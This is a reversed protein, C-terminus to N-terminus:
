ARAVASLGRRVGIAIASWTAGNFVLDIGVFMGLVWLSSEPWKALIAVGLLITIAGNLVVWGWSPFREVLGVAIRFPGGVLGFVAFLLTLSEAATVPNVLMVFGAAAYLIALGLFLFFGGWDRAWIAAAMQAGAAVLLVIGLTLVSAIT